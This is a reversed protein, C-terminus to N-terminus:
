SGVGPASAAKKFGAALAMSETFGKGGIGFAFLEGDAPQMATFTFPYTLANTTSLSQKGPTLTGRPYYWHLYIEEEDAGDRGVLLLSYERQAAARRKKATVGKGSVYDSFDGLDMWAQLTQLRSEQATFDITFTEEDLFKRRDGASGYGQIGEYKYDPALDVGAKKEIEGVSKWAADLTVFAGQADFLSDPATTGAPAMLVLLNLPALLLSDNKDKLQYFSKADAM